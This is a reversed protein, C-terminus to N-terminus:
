IAIRIGLLRADEGRSAAIGLDLGVPQEELQEGFGGSLVEADPHAPARRLTDAGRDSVVLQQRLEEDVQEFDGSHLIRDALARAAVEAAIDFCPQLPEQRPATTRRPM